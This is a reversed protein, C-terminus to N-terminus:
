RGVPFLKGDIGGRAAREWEAESPLRYKRGSIESLWKCYKEAEFWSIAVVPQQPDNFNSDSWLPPAAAGTAELFCAYLANSVQCAGLYFEDIWVRHAPRENEQGADSGMSFWGAPILVLKPKNEGIPAPM